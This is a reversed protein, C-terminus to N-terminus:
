VTKVTYNRPQAICAMNRNAAKVTYRDIMALISEGLMSLTAASVVQSLAAADFSLSLAMSGGALAEIIAGGSLGDFQLSLDGSGNVVSASVGSLSQDM